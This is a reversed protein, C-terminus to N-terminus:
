TNWNINRRVSLQAGFLGSVYKSSKTMRFPLINALRRGLEDDCEAYKLELIHGDHSYSNLKKGCYGSLLHSELDSDLTIRFMKNQTVYYKRHYRNLLTPSIGRLYVQLKHDVMLKLLSEKLGQFGKKADHSFAPMDFIKKSGLSNYKFKLELKPSHIEGHADGYWRVRVKVRRSLGDINDEAHRCDQYDLYINNINRPAFASSFIFQNQRVTVDVNAQHGCNVLFKREYRLDNKINEAKM